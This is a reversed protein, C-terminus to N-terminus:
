VLRYDDEMIINKCKTVLNRCEAKRTKRNKVLKTANSM